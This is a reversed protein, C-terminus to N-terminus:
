CKRKLFYMRRGSGESLKNLLKEMDEELVTNCVERPYEPDCPLETKERDDYIASKRVRRRRKQTKMRIQSAVNWSKIRM